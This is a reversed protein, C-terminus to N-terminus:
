VDWSRKLHVARFHGSTSLRAEGRVREPSRQLEVRESYCPTCTLDHRAENPRGRQDHEPEM